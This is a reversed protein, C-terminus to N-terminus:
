NRANNLDYQLKSLFFRAALREADDMDYWHHAAEESLLDDEEDSLDGDLRGELLLKVIENHRELSM